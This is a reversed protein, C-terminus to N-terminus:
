SCDVLMLSVISLVEILHERLNQVLYNLLCLLETTRNIIANYRGPGRYQADIIFHGKPVLTQSVPANYAPLPHYVDMGELALNNPNPYYHQGVSESNSPLPPQVDAGAYQAIFHVLPARNTAGPNFRPLGFGQNWLNYAYLSYSAADPVDAGWIKRYVSDDPEFVFATTIFANVDTSVGTVDRIKPVPFGQDKFSGNQANDVADVTFLANGNNGDGGGAIYYFGDVDEYSIHMNDKLSTPSYYTNGEGPVPVAPNNWQDGYDKNQLSLIKWEERSRILVHHEGDRVDNIADASLMQQDYLAYTNVMGEVPDPLVPGINVRKKLTGDRQIEMNKIDLAANDPMETLSLDTIMGNSFNSFQLQRHQTGM